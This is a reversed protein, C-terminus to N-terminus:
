RGRHEPCIYLQFKIKSDTLSQMPPHMSPHIPPHLSPCIPPHISPHTPPHTPLHIPPHTPSHISPHTPPYISPHHISLHCISPHISPHFFSHCPREGETLWKLIFIRDQDGEGWSESLVQLVYSSLLHRLFPHQHLPQSAACTVTTVELWVFGM